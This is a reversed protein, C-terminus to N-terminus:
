EINEFILVLAFSAAPLVDLMLLETNLSTMSAGPESTEDSRSEADGMIRVGGPVPVGPKHSKNLSVLNLSLITNIEECGSDISRSFSESEDNSAERILSSIALWLPAGIPM